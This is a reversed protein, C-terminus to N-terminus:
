EFDNVKKERTCDFPPSPIEEKSKGEKRKGGGMELCLAPLANIM